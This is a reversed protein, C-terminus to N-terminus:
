GHTALERLAAWTVHRIESAGERVETVAVKADEKGATGRHGPADYSSRSWLLNEVWSLRVGEFWRPVADIPQSEDVVRSYTGAHILRVYDFLEAYFDSRATM